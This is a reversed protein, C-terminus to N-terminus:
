SSWVSSSFEMVSNSFEVKFVGDCFKFVGVQFSWWLVQFEVASGFHQDNGSDNEFVQM